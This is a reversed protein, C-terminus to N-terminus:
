DRWTVEVPGSNPVVDLLVREGAPRLPLPIGSEVYHAQVEPVPTAVVLTLPERYEPYDVDCSLELNIGHELPQTTLTAAERKRYYRYIRGFTDVWLDHERRKIYDLHALLIQEIPIGATNRVGSVVHLVPILWGRKTITRDIRDDLVDISFNALAHNYAKFEERAAGHQQHVVNRVREDVKQRPYCFSFPSRGLRETIREFSGNVEAHLQQDDLEILNAPHSWTHNGVEHGAYLTERWESWATDWAEGHAYPAVGSSDCVRGGVLFFTGRLGFMELAPVAFDLHQRMGDDFTFSVAGRKAGLHRAISAPFRRARRQRVAARGARPTGADLNWASVDFGFTDRLQRIDPELNPLIARRDDETLKVRESSNVSKRVNRPQVLEYEWHSVGLFDEVKRLLSRPAHKLEEFDLLLMEVEPLHERFQEIQMAYRSFEIARPLTKRFTEFTAHGRAVNHALHSEIRDLPNRLLYLLKLQGDFRAMRPAVDAHQPYKAYQTTSEYRVKHAAPDFDWRSFYWNWGRQWNEDSSFFHLDKTSKPSAIEPHQRIYANLSTTGCKMGGVLIAHQSTM